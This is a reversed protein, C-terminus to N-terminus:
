GMLLFLPHFEFFLRYILFLLLLYGCLGGGVLLPYSNNYKPNNHHNGNVPSASRKMSIYCLFCVENWTPDIGKARVRSSQQRHETMKARYRKYEYFFTAYLRFYVHSGNGLSQSKFTDWKEM